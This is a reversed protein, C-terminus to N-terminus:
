PQELCARFRRPWTEQPSWSQERFLRYSEAASSRACSPALDGHTAEADTCSTVMWPEPLDLCSATDFALFPLLIMAILLLVALPWRVHSM